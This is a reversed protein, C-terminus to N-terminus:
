YFPYLLRRLLCLSQRRWLRVSWDPRNYLILITFMLITMGFFLGAGKVNGEYREKQHGFLYGLIVAACYGMLSGWTNHLVDDFEGLGRDLLVQSVEIAASFVFGMMAAKKWDPKQLIATLFFGFPMLRRQITFNSIPHIVALILYWYYGSHESWARKITWFLRLEIDGQGAERYLTAYLIVAISLLFLFRYSNKHIHYM